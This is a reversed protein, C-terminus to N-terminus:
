RAPPLQEGAKSVRERDHLRTHDLVLIRMEIRPHHDRPVRGPLSIPDRRPIGVRPDKASISGHEDVAAGEIFGDVEVVGALHESAEGAAGMGDEGADGQAAGVAPHDPIFAFRAVHGKTVEVIGLDFTIKRKNLYKVFCSGVSDLIVPIQDHRTM